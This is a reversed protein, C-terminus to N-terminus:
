PAIIMGRVPLGLAQMKAVMAAFQADMPTACSPGWCQEASWEYFAEWAAGEDWEGGGTMMSSGGGLLSEEECEDPIGDTDADESIEEAIDCADPIGNTNCDGCAPDNECAVIDCEDPFENGNCDPSVWEDGDPDEPDLDCVDPVGNSNCDQECEDPVGNTNCDQSVLENGDPDGPDADCDDPVGNSNCDAECEDPIGNTNCDPSTLEAIDWDDPVDNSNCDTECEDPISNANLDTSTENEIDLEDPIGNGNCDGGRLVMTPGCPEGLITLTFCQIDLGNFGGDSNMDYPCLDIINSCAGNPPGDMLATVFAPVDSVNVVTDFNVDGKLCPALSEQYEAYGEPLLTFWVDYPHFVNSVDKNGRTWAFATTLGYAVTHAGSNALARHFYPGESEHAYNVRFERGMPRGDAEFYQAHIDWSGAAYPPYVNWAAVWRGRHEPDSTLAVTPHSYDRGPYVPPAVSTDNDVIFQESAFGPSHVGDWTLRRAYIHQGNCGDGPDGRWVVVVNSEGNEDPDDIAIAPSLEHTYGYISVPINVKLPEPIIANGSKDFCLIKIDFFDGFFSHESEYDAWVIVSKGDSRMAACPKWYADWCYPDCARIQEVTEVAYVLGWSTAELPRMWTSIAAEESVGVSVEKDDFGSSAQSPPPPTGLLCLEDFSFTTTFVGIVGQDFQYALRGTWEVSSLGSASMAASPQQAKNSAGAGVSLPPSLFVPACISTGDSELRAAYVATNSCDYGIKGDWAVLLRGTEPEMAISPNASYLHADNTSEFSLRGETIILETGEVPYTTPPIQTTATPQTCVIAAEEEDALVVIPLLLFVPALPLVLALTCRFASVRHSM